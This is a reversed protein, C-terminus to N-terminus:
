ISALNNAKSNMVRFWLPPILSLVMMGPYGTPMQPSEEHHRLVQYKRSARYHHDSHRSLEFLMMRGLVHNSNWSHHIQVREYHGNDKQRRELGYHEIYNVTELMLIGILAAGVFAFMAYLNIGWGIAVLAGIQLLHYVLMENHLSWFPKGYKALRDQEIRWASIYGGITSRIWFQYVTEGMRATAPDEPTGVRKHHGRNHEIYFHMYLSSLLSAKALIKEFRSKRHGLEHGVNIGYVGCMLGMSITMGIKEGLTLMDPKTWWSLFIGLVLYQLPVMAYIVWDYALDDRVIEEEARSMNAENAGIGIELLPILVFVYIAPFWVTSEQWMFAVIVCIPLTLTLLYKAVRWSKM